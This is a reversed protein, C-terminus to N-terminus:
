GDNLKFRALATTAAVQLRKDPGTALSRLYSQTEIGGGLQGLAAIASFRAIVDENENRSVADAIKGADRVGLEACVQLATARNTAPLSASSAIALAAAGLRSQEQKTLEGRQSAGLLHLSATAAFDKNEDQLAQWHFGWGVRPDKEATVAVFQLAYDRVGVDQKADAYVVKFVEAAEDLWVDARILVAMAENKLYRLQDPNLTAIAEPSRVFDCVAEWDARNVGLGLARLATLRPLLPLKSQADLVEGLVAVPLDDPKALQNLAPRATVTKIELPLSVALGGAEPSAVSTDGKARIHSGSVAGVTPVPREHRPAQTYFWASGGTVLLALLVAGVRYKQIKKPSTMVRKIM